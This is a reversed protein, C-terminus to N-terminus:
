ATLCATVCRSPAREAAFYDRSPDTTKDTGFRVASGGRLGKPRQPVTMVAHRSQGLARDGEHEGVQLPRRLRPFPMGLRHSARHSAVVRDKGARDSIVGAREHYGSTLSIAYQRHEPRSCGPGCAREVDLLFEGAFGPRFTEVQLHPDGQMGALRLEALAVVKTRRQVTTCPQQCCAM